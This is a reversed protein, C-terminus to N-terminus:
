SIVLILFMVCPRHRTFNGASFDMVTFFTLKGCVCSLAQVRMSFNMINGLIINLLLSSPPSAKNIVSGGGVLKM